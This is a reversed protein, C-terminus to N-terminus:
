KSLYSKGTSFLFLAISYITINCMTDAMTRIASLSVKDGACTAILPILALHSTKIIAWGLGWLSALISYYVLVMTSDESEPVPAPRSKSDGFPPVFLPLFGFVCITGIM